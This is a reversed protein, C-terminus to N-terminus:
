GAEAGDVCEARLTELQASIQEQRSHISNIWSVDPTPAQGADIGESVMADLTEAITTYQESCSTVSVVPPPPQAWPNWLVIVAAGAVAGALGVGAAGLPTVGARPEGGGSGGEPSLLQGIEQDGHDVNGMLRNYVLM